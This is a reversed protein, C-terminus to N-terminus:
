RAESSAKRWPWSSPVSTEFPAALVRLLWYFVPPQSTYIESGLEQGRRMADLSALYVGEDYNAAAEVGRIYVFAAVALLGAVALGERFWGRSTM